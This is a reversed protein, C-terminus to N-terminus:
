VEGALAVQMALLRSVLDSAMLTTAIVAYLEQKPRNDGELRERLMGMQRELLEFAHAAAVHKELVPSSAGPTDQKRKPENAM